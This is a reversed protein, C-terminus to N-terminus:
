KTHVAARTNIAAQGLPPSYIDQGGNGIHFSQNGILYGWGRSSPMDHIWPGGSAGSGMDCSIVRYGPVSSSGVCFRLDGGNPSIGSRSPHTNEAYGFARVDGYSATAPTAGFKYGQWGVVDGVKGRSNSSLALAAMDYYNDSGDHYGNPVAWAKATWTGYPRSGNNFDPAFKFNKYWGKHGNSVCHGATWITNHNSSSIVTATCYRDGEPKTLFLKGITRAPLKGHGAWVKSLRFYTLADASMTSLTDAPPGADGDASESVQPESPPTTPQTTPSSEDVLATAQQMRADTWYADVSGFPEIAVGVAVDSAAAAASAVPSVLAVTCCAAALVASVPRFRRFM